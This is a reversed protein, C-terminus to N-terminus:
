SIYKGDLGVGNRVVWAEKYKGEFCKVANEVSIQYILELSTDSQFGSHPNIIVNDRGLLPCKSLYEADPFESELMDLGAGRVLGTDLAWALAEESIMPGRGENIIFPKKKMKSFAERDFMHVNDETLNMHISIVDSEAFITDLDVLTAGAAEAIEPPLFPDYALIKMGLGKGAIRAVHRGIRGLGVIGMTQGEVRQQHQVVTCDWVKDEQISRNYILTGRQLCLMTAIANEATEQTCYDLISAVAIGKEAAYDLDVENYGTSQFSICKCKKLADIEKKGFYVYSNIVVDADELLKYFEANDGEAKMDAIVVDWGEPIFKREELHLMGNSGPDNTFVMKM